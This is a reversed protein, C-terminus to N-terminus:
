DRFKGQCYPCVDFKDFVVQSLSPGDANDHNPSGPKMKGPDLFQRGCKSCFKSIGPEQIAVFSLSCRTFRHGRTCRAQDLDLDLTFPIPSNCIECTEATTGINAASKEPSDVDMLDTQQSRLSEPHVDGDTTGDLDVESNRLKILAAANCLIKSDWETKALDLGLNVVFDVIRDQVIAADDAGLLTSSPEQGRAFVITIRQWSPIAFDIMDSPHVSVCAAALTHDPSWATGWYEVCTMGGLGHKRDLEARLVPISPQFMEESPATAFIAEPPVALSTFSVNPPRGDPEEQTRHVQVVLYRPDRCQGLSVKVFLRASAQDCQWQSAELHAIPSSHSLNFRLSHKGTVNERMQQLDDFRHQQLPEFSWQGYAAKNTKRVCFITITYDDDAAILFQSQADFKQSAPLSPFWTFARIRAKCRAKADYEDDRDVPPLHNNVIATRRWVGLKGNTEWISLVLNSTLVTLVSRKYLGLGEPSWALAVVPSDSLEEGLSFQAVPALNQFPWEEKEFLNVRLTFIHWQDHDTAEQSKSADLRTLIHVVEGAAVVLNDTSWSLVNKCTPWYLLNVPQLDRGSHDM